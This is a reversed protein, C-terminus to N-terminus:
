VDEEKIDGNEIYFLKGVNLKHSIDMECCTIFVQWNNIKNMLFNQRTIDLESLVDDLLIVPQENTIEDVITAEALKLSLVISRQQGQSAFKRANIGNIKIDIDDRHPGIVTYKLNLDEQRSKQLKNKLINYIENKDETDKPLKYGTSYRLSLKEKEESIGFHFEKAKEKLLNIYKIREYILVAGSTILKEDWIDLTDILENHYPIDKLLANRQNLIKNYSSLVIAYRPYLQCIANDLFKRRGSPGEKVLSLHEPSFVISTIKGMLASPTDKKIGNLYAERKGNTILIKATQEREESFFEIESCAFDKNFAILEQDKAGRFSRVGNFMWIAELINTKGQANNGYIINIGKCPKIQSSNLNRFNLFSLKEIRM